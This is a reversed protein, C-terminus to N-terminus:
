PPSLHQPQRPLLPADQPGQTEPVSDPVRELKFQTVRLVGGGNLLAGFHLSDVEKPIQVVVSAERWAFSGQLPRLAMNDFVRGMDQGVDGRLWIGGWQTLGEGQVQASLRLRQGAYDRAQISQMATVFGRSNGPCDLLFVKATPAGPSAETSSRCDAADGARFWGPPLQNPNAALATVMLAVLPAAILARLQFSTTKMANHEDEDM